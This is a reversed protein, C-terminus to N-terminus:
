AVVRYKDENLMEIKFDKLGEKKAYSKAKDESKFTKPRKKRNRAKNWIYRKSYFTSGM